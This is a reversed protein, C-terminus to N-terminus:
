NKKLYKKLLKTKDTMNILLLKYNKTNNTLFLFNYKRKIYNKSIYDKLFLNYGTIPKGAAQIIYVEKEAESLEKWEQVAKAFTDRINYQNSSNSYYERTTFYYKNNKVLRLGRAEKRDKGNLYTITKGVSGSATLSFLPSKVIPM